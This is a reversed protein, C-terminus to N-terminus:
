PRLEGLMVSMQLRAGLWTYAWVFRPAKGFGRNIRWRRPYEM